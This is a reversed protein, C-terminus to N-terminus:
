RPKKIEFPVDMRPNPPGAHKKENKQVTMRIFENAVEKQLELEARKLRGARGYEVLKQIGHSYKDKIRRLIKTRRHLEVGLQTCIEDLSMTENEHAM